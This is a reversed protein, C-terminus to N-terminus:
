VTFSKADLDVTTLRGNGAVDDHTLTTGFVERALVDADALVVGQERQDVAGNNELLALLVLAKDRNERQAAFGLSSGSGFVGMFFGASAPNKTEVM